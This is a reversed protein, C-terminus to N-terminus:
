NTTVILRPYYNPDEGGYIELVDSPFDISTTGKLRFQTKGTKNIFQFASEPLSVETYGNDAGPVGLTVM